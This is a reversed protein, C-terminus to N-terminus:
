CFAYSCLPYPWSHGPSTSVQMTCFQAASFITEEEKNQWRGVGAAEEGAIYGLPLLFVYSLFYQTPRASASTLGSASHAEDSRVAGASWSNEVHAITQIEGMCLCFLLEEPTSDVNPNQVLGNALVIPKQDAFFVQMLDRSDKHSNFSIGNTERNFQDGVAIEQNCDAHRRRSRPHPVQWTVFWYSGGDPDFCGCSGDPVFRRCSVEM